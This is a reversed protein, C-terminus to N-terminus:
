SDTGPCEEGGTIKELSGKEISGEIMLNVVLLTCEDCIVASRDDTAVLKLVDKQAKGCFSCSIM